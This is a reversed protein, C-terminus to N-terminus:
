FDAFLDAYRGVASAGEAQAVVRVVLDALERVPTVLPRAAEGHVRRVLAVEAVFGHFRDIESTRKQLERVAADLRRRLRERCRPSLGELAELAGRAEGLLTEVRAYGEESFAYVGETAFLDRYKAAREEAFAQQARRAKVAEAKEAEERLVTGVYELDVTEIDMERLREPVALGRSELFQRVMIMLEGKVWEDFLLGSKANSFRSWEKHMAIVADSTDAPLNRLFDETFYQELM